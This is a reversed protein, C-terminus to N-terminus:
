ASFWDFNPGNGEDPFDKSEFKPVQIDTTEASDNTKKDANAM